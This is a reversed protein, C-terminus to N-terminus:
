SLRNNLWEIFSVYLEAKQYRIIIRDFAYVIGLATIIGVGVILYAGFGAATLIDNWRMRTLLCACAMYLLYAETGIMGRTIINIIVKLLIKM